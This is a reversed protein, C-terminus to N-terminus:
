RGPQRKESEPPGDDELVSRAAEDFQKKRKSGYAWVVIGAFLVLMVVTLAARASTLDM